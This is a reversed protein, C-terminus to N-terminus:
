SQRRCSTAGPIVNKVMSMKDIVWDVFRFYNISWTRISIVLCVSLLGVAFGIGVSMYFWNDEFADDDDDNDNSHPVDTETAECQVTLPSGCLFRNGTYASADFTSLQGGSPIRGSFNNNSLNLYSLFSVASLSSPIGGSFLNNSLDLSLLEHMDGIRDPIKGSLQNRSLDLVLLGALKTIAGPFEGSLKNGSLDISTVLSLTKNFVLEKNNLHMTLSEEYYTGRYRGYFLYRNVKQSQAMARLDGFSRPIPGELDNEALDLVQLSLLNSLKSPIEGALKNSRLRLIRLAPFNQGLWSPIIGELKNNGLDLTELSSCNQLSPPIIGYLMNNGLHLIHLQELSGISSPIIGNLHNHELDLAKLYSCNQLSPPIVGMLNNRSLDLVQLGQMKGISTPIQGSINNNSLSLYILNPQVEGINPPIIGSFQNHSLDLLEVENSLVPIPGSLLNSRMDIDSFAAINLPNPLQGEIQNFSINLLSLNSSLDWFWTPINGSISSNSLDLYKLEKQNELWTPFQPGLRCSGIGLNRVQFSPVWGSNVNIIFSNSSMSLIKLNSLAAFHIESLTGTLQNSSIDFHVLKSLQGLTPPLTGNLENGELSLDTLLSLKGISRPVPGRFSNYSLDLVQLNELEGLWEPLIGSLKNVALRFHALGHLPKQSICKNTKELSAPLGLTLNNGSLDLTKLNCLKGISGPIGGEINNFFLNLEALMAINGISAPLHGYVRNSALNLIQIQRWTGNLLKSCDATLNGNTSLDLHRLNPLNSLEVPILGHLNTSSIDVHILRSLNQFWEPITSNLSNFSLDIVSLSTLNVSPLSLAIGSLSCAKLHLETLSPLRNLMHIWEPGILSLDVGDMALHVLSSLGTIWQFSDVMLLQFNSSLDLYQLRSLNGLRPPITGVFGANSLDLYRLNNLSGIFEPIRIGEFTNYSLDLHRLSKLQLLSPDVRGSLNWFGNRSNSVSGFDKPHQNQLDIGIVFGTQNDCSVGRWRCCNRGQWSSLRNEPDSLGSKFQLLAKREADLCSGDSAGRCILFEASLFCAFLLCHGIVCPGSASSMM